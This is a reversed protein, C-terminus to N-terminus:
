KFRMVTARYGVTDDEYAVYPTGMSDIALSTFAAGGPSFGATGVTQWSGGTYKMVMAKYLNALFVFAV